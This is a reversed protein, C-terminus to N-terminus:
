KGPQLSRYESECDTIKARSGLGTFSTRHRRDDGEQQFKKEGGAGGARVVGAGPLVIQGRQAGGTKGFQVAGPDLVIRRGAPERLALRENMRRGNQM